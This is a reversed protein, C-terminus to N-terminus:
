AVLVLEDHGLAVVHDRMAPEGAIPAGRGPDGGVDDADLVALEGLVPVDQLVLRGLGLGDAPQRHEAVAEGVSRTTMEGMSSRIMFSVPLVMKMVPPPEPM